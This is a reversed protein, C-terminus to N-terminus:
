ARAGGRAPTMAKRYADAVEGAFQRAAERAGDVISKAQSFDLMSAGSMPPRFTENAYIADRENGITALTALGRMSDNMRSLPSVVSKIRTFWSEQAQPPQQVVDSAIVFDAGERILV